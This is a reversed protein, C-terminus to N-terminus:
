YAISRGTAAEYVAQVSAHWALQIPDPLNDWEPMPDAKMDWYGVSQGYAKYALEALRMTTQEKSEMPAGFHRVVNYSM